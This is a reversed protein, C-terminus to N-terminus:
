VKKRKLYEEWLKRVGASFNGSGYKEIGRRMSPPLTVEVRKCKERYLSPRGLGRM